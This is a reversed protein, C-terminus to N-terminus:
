YDRKIIRYGLIMIFISLVGLLVGGTIAGFLPTIESCNFLIQVSFGLGIIGGVICFSGRLKVNKM